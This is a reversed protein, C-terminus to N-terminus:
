APLALLVATKNHFQPQGRGLPGIEGFTLCGLLPVQRGLGARFRQLEENIRPGLLALRSVCDFAVAGALPGPVAARADAAAASAADLLRPVDGRMMRVLCGEPVTGVCRVSGDPELRLPDRLVYEGNAQPIGFPHFMAFRAFDERSVVDGRSAATRCYITFANEYDLESITNHQARTVLTPPGYPQWGHRVGVGSVAPTELVIAVVHGQLARGHVFQAANAGHLNHGGGGGVWQGTAGAADVAGRVVEGVEGATGHPLLFFTREGPEDRRPLAALAQTVADRGAARSDDELLGGYGCGVALPGAFLGVVLGQPLFREGAFVGATCSGAWPVGELEASLADALVDARYQDTSFVLAFVPAPTQRRAEAVAEAAAARAEPRDSAGIFLGVSM